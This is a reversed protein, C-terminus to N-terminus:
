NDSVETRTPRERQFFCQIIRSDVPVSQGQRSSKPKVSWWTCFPAASAAANRGPAPRGASRWPCRYTPYGAASTSENRSADQEFNASFDVAAKRSCFVNDLNISCNLNDGVVCCISHM